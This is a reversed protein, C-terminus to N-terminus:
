PRHLLTMTETVVLRDAGDRVETGIRAFTMVQGGRGTRTYVDDVVRTVHLVDGVLIPRLYVFEQDAHLIMGGDARLAGILDNLDVTAGSAAPQLDPFAGWGHMVFSFTPPVPIGALGADRAAQPRQYIASTDKVAQAFAAVPGREIVVTVPALNRGVFDSAQM